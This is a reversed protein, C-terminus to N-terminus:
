KSAKRKRELIRWTDPFTIAKPPVPYKGDNILLAMKYALMFDDFTVKARVIFWGIGSSPIGNEDTKSRLGKHKSGLYLVYCEDITESTSQEYAEKYAIVQLENKRSHITSTKFDIIIKKDNIVLIAKLDLTGAFRVDENIYAIVQEPFIDTLEVTQFFDVFAALGLKERKRRFDASAVEDGLLLREIAQHVNSGREQADALIDEQEEKSTRKFYELLGQEPPVGMSLITTVGVVPEGDITYSHGFEDEYYVVECQKLKYTIGNVAIDSM